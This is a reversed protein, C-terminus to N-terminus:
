DDLLRKVAAMLDALEFPKEMAVDAGLRMAVELYKGITVNPSGSIAIIKVTPDARRLKQILEFGEVDPMVIDTIVLRAQQERCSALAQKGDYAESVDHGHSELLGRISEVMLPDDDVVLIQAM